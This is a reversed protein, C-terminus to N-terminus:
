TWRLNLLRGHRIVRRRGALQDDTTLPRDRRDRQITRFTVVREITLHRSFEVGSDLFDGDVPVTADHDKAAGAVRETGTIVDLLEVVPPRLIEDPLDAHVLVGDVHDVVHHGDRDSSHVAYTRAAPQLEGQHTIENDGGVTRPPAHRLDVPVDGGAPASSAEEEVVVGGAEDDM